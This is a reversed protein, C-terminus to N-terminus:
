RRPRSEADFDVRDALEGPVSDPQDGDPRPPLCAAARASDVPGAVVGQRALTAQVDANWQAYEDLINQRIEKIRRPPLRRYAWLMEREGTTLAGVTYEAQAEAAHPPAPADAALTAAGEGSALWLANVQLYAAAKLLPLGKINKTEGSFWDSVSPARVGAAKALAAQSHKAPDFVEALRTRLSSM